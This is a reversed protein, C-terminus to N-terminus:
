KKTILILPLEFKKLIKKFNKGSSRENFSVRWLFYSNWNLDPHMALCALKYLNFLHDLIIYKYFPIKSWKIKISTFTAYSYTEVNISQNKIKLWSEQGRFLRSYGSFTFNSGGHFSFVRQSWGIGFRLAFFSSGSGGTTWFIGARPVTIKGVM